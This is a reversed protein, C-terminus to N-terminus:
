PAAPSSVVLFLVGAGATAATPTGGITGDQSVVLLLPDAATFRIQWSPCNGGAAEQIVGSSLARSTQVYLVGDNGDPAIDADNHLDPVPGSNAFLGFSGHGGTFTGIDAMTPNANFATDLGFWADLLVDGVAPTYGTEIGNALDAADAFTFPVMITRVAGASSGGGGAVRGQVGEVTVVELSSDDPDFFSNQVRDLAM